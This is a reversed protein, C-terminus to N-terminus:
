RIGARYYYISLAGGALTGAMLSLFLINLMVAPPCNFVLTVLGAIFGTSFFVFALRGSKLEILKDMEDEIVTAEIMKEIVKDDRTREKVAIAISLLIHFIIQIVIMAGIGIGIFVLMAVAFFKLDSLEVAGSQYKSFVYICYAALLLVGSVISVVTRKEQYSM